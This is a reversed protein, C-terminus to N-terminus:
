LAIKNRHAAEENEINVVPEAPGDGCLYAPYTEM